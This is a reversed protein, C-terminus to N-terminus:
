VACYGFLSDGQLLTKNTSVIVLRDVLIAPAMGLETTRYIVKLNIYLLPSFVVSKLKERAIKKIGIRWECWGDEEEDVPTPVTFGDPTEAGCSEFEIV